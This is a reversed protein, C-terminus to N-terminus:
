RHLLTTYAKTLRRSAASWSYSELVRPINARWQARQASSRVCQQLTKVLSHHDAPNVVMGVQFSQVVRRIEPLDSALVPIDAMLYEFLKNPLAYRHNLCTDELLTVGLDADAAVSLLMEPPVPDVFRVRELLGHERASLMLKAKLPGGGLFVLIANNIHRMADLLLFCGRSKQISGLHLILTHDTNVGARQRLSGSPLPSAFEPVNHLVAPRDIGYKGQLHMAISDSVTFVADAAGIHHREICHWAARTWPRNVTSAVHPYLERADYVLAGGCQGAARRLAGLCYLDSAHFVRATYTRAVQLFLRHVRFFFRPGHGPPRPLHRLHVGDDMLWMGSDQGLALVTVTLGFSRLIRLQKRARSNHHIDGTLAFLIDTRTM